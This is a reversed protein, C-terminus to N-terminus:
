KFALTIDLGIAGQSVSSTFYFFDLRDMYEWVQIGSQLWSLLTYSICFFFSTCVLPSSFFLREMRHGLHPCLSKSADIFVFACNTAGVFFRFGSKMIFHLCQPESIPTILFQIFSIQDARSIQVPLQGPRQPLVAFGTLFTYPIPFRVTLGPCPDNTQKLM